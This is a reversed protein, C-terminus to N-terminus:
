RPAVVRTGARRILHENRGAPCSTPVYAGKVLKVRVGTYAHALAPDAHDTVACTIGASTTIILSLRNNM